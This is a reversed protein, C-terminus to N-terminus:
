RAQRRGVGEFLRTLRCNRNQIVDLRYSARTVDGAHTWIESMLLSAIDPEETRVGVLM